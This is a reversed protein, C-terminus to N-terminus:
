EERIEIVYTSCAVIYNGNAVPMVQEALFSFRPSLTIRDGISPLSVLERGCHKRDTTRQVIYM